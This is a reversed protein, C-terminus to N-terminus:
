AKRIALGVLGSAVSGWSMDVLAFHLPYGKLIALNTLDFVGYIVFGMSAGWAFSKWLPTRANSKPAVFFAMAFSMLLYTLAAPAFNMDFQGDKIRGIESLQAVNFDRMVFGLWLVDLIVYTILAILFCKLNKM